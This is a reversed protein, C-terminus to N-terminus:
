GLGEGFVSEGGRHCTASFIPAWRIQAAQPHSTGLAPVHQAEQRTESAAQLQLVFAQLMTVQTEQPQSCCSQAGLEPVTCVWLPALPVSMAAM